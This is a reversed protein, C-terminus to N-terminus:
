CYVQCVPNYPVHRNCSLYSLSEATIGSTLLKNTFHIANKLFAAALASLLGAILSLLYVLKVQDQDVLRSKVIKRLISNRLM